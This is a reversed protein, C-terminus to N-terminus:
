SIWREGSIQKWEGDEYRLKYSHGSGCLPGAQYGTNVDVDIPGRIWISMLDKRGIFALIEDVAFNSLYPDVLARDRHWQDIDTEDGVPEAATAEAASTPEIAGEAFETEEEYLAARFLEKLLLAPEVSAMTGAKSFEALRDRMREWQDVFKRPDGRLTLGREALLQRVEALSTKGFNRMAYLEQARKAVLQNFTTIGAEQLGKRTRVSMADVPVPEDDAVPSPEV